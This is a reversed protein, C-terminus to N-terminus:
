RNGVGIQWVAHWRTQRGPMQVAHLEWEVSDRTVQVRDFTGPPFTSEILVVKTIPGFLDTLGSLKLGKWDVNILGDPNLENSIARNVLTLSVTTDAIDLAIAAIGSTVTGTFEVGPGVAAVRQMFGGTGADLQARVTVGDLGALTSGIMLVANVLSWANM